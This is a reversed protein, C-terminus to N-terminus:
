YILWIDVWTKLVVREKFCIFLHRYTQPFPKPFHVQEMLGHGNKAQEQHGWASLLASGMM